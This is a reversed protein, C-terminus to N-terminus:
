QSLKKDCKTVGAVSQLLQWNTAIDQWIKYSSFPDSGLVHSM